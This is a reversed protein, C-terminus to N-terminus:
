HFDVILLVQMVGDKVVDGKISDLISNASQVQKGQPPQEQRKLATSKEYTAIGKVLKSAHARAKTDQSFSACSTILMFMCDCCGRKM